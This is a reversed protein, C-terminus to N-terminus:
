AKGGKEYVMSGAPSPELYITRAWQVEQSFQWCAKRPGPGWWRRRDYDQARKTWYKPIEAKTLGM